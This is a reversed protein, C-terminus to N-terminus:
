LGGGSARWDARLDAVDQALRKRAWQMAAAENAPIHVDCTGALQRGQTGDATLLWEGGAAGYFRGIVLTGVAVYICWGDPYGPVIRWSARGRKM